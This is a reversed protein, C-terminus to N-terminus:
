IISGIDRLPYSDFYRVKLGRVTIYDKIAAYDPHASLDGNFIIENGAKGSAGGILGTDYGPLEVYGPRVLLVDIGAKIAAGAIGRDYTIISNEDVPVISCCAYGQKVDVPILGLDNVAKLLASDTHRLDHIFYRGTSFGNYRIDGPYDPSLLDGDGEFIVDGDLRCFILDPHNRLPEAVNMLSGFLEVEYRESLYNILPKGADSSIIIRNNM